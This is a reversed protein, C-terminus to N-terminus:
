RLPPTWGRDRLRDNKHRREDINRQREKKNDPNARYQAIFEAEAEDPLFRCERYAEDCAGSCLIGKSGARGYTEGSEGCMYCNQWDSSGDSFHFPMFDPADPDEGGVEENRNKGNGRNKQQKGM